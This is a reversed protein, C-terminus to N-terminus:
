TQPPPTTTEIPSPPARLSPMLPKECATLVAIAPHIGDTYALDFTAIYPDGNPEFQGYFYFYTSRVIRQAIGIDHTAFVLSEKDNFSWSAAEHNGAGVQHVVHVRGDFGVAIEIPSEIKVSVDLTKQPLNCVINLWHGERSQHKVALHVRELDSHYHMDKIWAKADPILQNAMHHIPANLVYGLLLVVVIELAIARLVLTSTARLSFM